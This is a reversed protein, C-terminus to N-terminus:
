GAKTAARKAAKKPAARKEHWTGDVYHASWGTPKGDVDTAVYQIKEKRSL